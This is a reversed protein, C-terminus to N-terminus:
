AVAENLFRKKFSHFSRYSVILFIALGAWRIALASFFASLSEDLAYIILAYQSIALFIYGFPIWMTEPGPTEIHSRLTHACIYIILSLNFIRTSMSVIQYSPLAVDPISVLLISTLFLAILLILSANGLWRSDKASKRSFYYTMTLFVFAFTRLVTLIYMTRSGLFSPQFYIFSSLAYTAGLFGFGLPLGLYRSQGTLQYPKIMFRVLIFCLIASTAEYIIRFTQYSYIDLTQM